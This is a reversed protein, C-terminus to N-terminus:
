RFQAGEESEKSRIKTVVWPGVSARETGREVRKKKRDERPDCLM